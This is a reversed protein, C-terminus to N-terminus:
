RKAEETAVALGAERWLKQADRQDVIGIKTLSPKPDIRLVRAGIDVESEDTNIFTKTKYGGPHRSMGGVVMRLEPGACAIRVRDALISPDVITLFVCEVLVTRGDFLVDCNQPESM